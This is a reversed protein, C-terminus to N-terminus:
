FEEVKYYDTVQKLSWVLLAIAPILIVPNVHDGMLYWDLITDLNLNIFLLSLFNNLGHAIIGPIVSDTRWVLFGIIIGMVFIQVAWFPNAHILTWSLSTLIVARTVDGKNELTVQLFGRFLLEEAISAIIVTGIILIIWDFLTQAIMVKLLENLFEPMPIILQIIRDLEDGVIGITLGILLSYQLIESSVPKLRFLANFDYKKQRIYLTPIIFFLIGGIIYFFRNSDNSSMDIDIISNLITLAFAFIIISGFALLIIVLAEVPEPFKKQKDM